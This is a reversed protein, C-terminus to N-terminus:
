LLGRELDYFEIGVDLVHFIQQRARDRQCHEYRDHDAAAHEVDVILRAAHM